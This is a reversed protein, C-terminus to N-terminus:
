KPKIIKLRPVSSLCSYDRIGECGILTVLPVTTLSCIYCLRPCYLIEVCRNRGLGSIDYLESCSQLIITPIDGLGNVHEISCDRIHLTQLYRFISTKEENIIKVIQFCNELKLRRLQSPFSDYNINIRDNDFTLRTNKLNKIEFLEKDHAHFSSTFVGLDPIDKLEFLTDKMSPFLYVRLRKAYRFVSLDPIECGNVKVNPIHEFCKFGKKISRCHLLCLRHHNGLSSIDEINKCAILSLDYIGHLPSIDILNNCESLTLRHVNRCFAVDSVESISIRISRQRSSNLVSFDRINTCAIFSLHPINQLPTIDTLESASGLELRNLHSLTVVNVINECFNISLDQLSPLFPIEKLERSPVLSLSSVAQPFYLSSTGFHIKHAILDRIESPFRRDFTLSIQKRGDKVKKLLKERFQENEVYELSKEQNLSFYITEQKLCSFYRKSTNMFYHIDDYSLFSQFQKIIVDPLDVILVMNHLIIPIVTALEIM